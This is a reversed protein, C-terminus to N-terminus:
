INEGKYLKKFVELLVKTKFESCDYEIHKGCNKNYDDIIKEAWKRVGSSLDLYTCGGVNADKPVTNSVYCKVGMAQAEILVIGFGEKISPFLLGTSKSLLYSTNYNSNFINVNKNLELNEIKERIEKEYDGFGVLNLTCKCNCSLIYKLIELSFLQNKNKSFSGIQTLEIQKYFQNPYKDYFFIDENYSNKIVTWKSKSGFLSVCAEKSCGISSTAYKAILHRYYHNLWKRINNQSSNIIHSHVIRVPIKYKYAARVCLASEFQNNCHIIDYHPNNRLISCLKNYIKIGRIYYDLRKRFKNNGSYNPIRYIAGSFSLFEKEYFREEDTFLLMDFINYDSLGRIISMMVAQVGGNGLGECSVMLVRM